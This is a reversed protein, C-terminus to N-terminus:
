GGKKNLSLLLQEAEVWPLRRSRQKMKKLAELAKKVSLLGHKVM